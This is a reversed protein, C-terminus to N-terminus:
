YKIRYLVSKVTESFVWLLDKERTWWKEVIKQYDLTTPRMTIKVSDGLVKQFIYDTRKTHFPHTVVIVKQWNYKKILEKLLLAEEYTSSRAKPTIIMEAGIGRKLAEERAYYARPKESGLLQRRYSAFVLYDIKSQKFRKIAAFVRDGSGGSPVFLADAPGGQDSNVIFSNAYKSLIPRHLLIMLFFLAMPLFIYIINKIKKIRKM